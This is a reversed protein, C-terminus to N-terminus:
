QRYFFPEANVNMKKNKIYFVLNNNMYIRIFPYEKQISISQFISKDKPNIQVYEIKKLSFNNLCITKINENLISNNELQLQYLILYKKDIFQIYQEQTFSGFLNIYFNNFFYLYFFLKKNFFYM